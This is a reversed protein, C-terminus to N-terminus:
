FQLWKLVWGFDLSNIKQDVPQYLSDTRKLMNKLMYKLDELNFRNPVRLYGTCSPHTACTGVVEFTTLSILKGTGGECKYQDSFVNFGWDIGYISENTTLGLQNALFTYTLGNSTPILLSNQTQQGFVSPDGSYTFSLTNNHLRLCKWATRTSGDPNKRGSFCVEKRAISDGTATMNFKLDPVTTTLANQAPRGLSYNYLNNGVGACSLSSTYSPSPSPRPTPRPTIRPSPSTSPIPGSVCNVVKRGQTGCSSWGAPVELSGTCMNAQGDYANCVIEYSKGGSGSACTVNKPTSSLSGVSESRVEDMLVWDTTGMERKFMQIIQLDNDQDTGVATFPRPSAGVSLNGAQGNIVCTPPIGSPAPSPEIGGINTDLYPSEALSTNTGATENYQDVKFFHLRDLYFGNSRGSIYFSHIGPTLNFSAWAGPETIIQITNWQWTNILEHTNAMKYWVSNDLKAWMDNDMDAAPDKKNSRMRFAYTGPNTVWLKYEIVGNGPTSFYDPDTWKIYGQGTSGGVTSEVTWGSSVQKTEPQIVIMGNQEHFAMATTGPSPSPSPLPQAQTNQIVVVWDERDGADALPSKGITVSASGAVNQTGGEYNGTRPNYWRLTLAQGNVESLNITGNDGSSTGRLYLLYTRGPDYYVQGTSRLSDGPRFNARNPFEYLLKRAYWTWNWMPERDQFKWLSMGKDHEQGYYWSLNGGSFLTSYLVRKRMDNQNDVTMGIQANEEAIAEDLDIVWPRGANASKERWEETFLSANDYSNRKTTFQISTADFNPDGLLDHYFHLDDKNTHVAIPHDYPDLGRIFAAFAKLDSTPFRNEETIIWRLALHHSFRAILERYFLKRAETLTLGLYERNSQEQENLVFELSVEKKMAEKFFNNWITMKSVDYHTIDTQNVFPYTDKWDGGLNMPLFYISNVKKDALYTLVALANQYVDPYEINNIFNEPSNSGGKVWYQNTKLCKLYHAQAYILRGCYSYFGGLNSEGAVSFSGSSPSIGVSSGGSGNVAVGGGTVLTATYNWTGESEANFHARWKKGGGGNGDGVFYGPITYSKSGKSILVTLKYDLFPNPNSSTQSLDAHSATFELTIEEWKKYTGTAETNTIKQRDSQWRILFATAGLFFLVILALLIRSTPSPFKRRSRM